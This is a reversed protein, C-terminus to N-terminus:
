AATVSIARPKDAEIRRLIVTLVGDKVKAEAREADVRYPLQITRQFAFANRERRHWVAEPRAPEAPKVEIGDVPKAEDAPKADSRIERKGALTVTDGVISLQLSAPDIGPVETTIAVSEANAWVNLPNDETAAFSRPGHALLTAFRDFLRDVDRNLSHPGFVDYFM